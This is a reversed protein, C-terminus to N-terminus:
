CRFAMPNSLNRGIKDAAAAKLLYCQLNATRESHPRCLWYQAAM